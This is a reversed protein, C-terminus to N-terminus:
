SREEGSAGAEGPVAEAEVRSSVTGAALRTRLRAGAPADEPSRVLSGDARRTISFGRALTREPSLGSVLRGRGELRAAVEGLRGRAAGALRWGLVRREREAREAPRPAARAIRRATQGTRAGALRLRQRAARAVAAGLGSLRAAARDLRGRAAVARREAALLRERAAGLPLRSSRLLADRCRGLAAEAEALRAVLFEAAKTPTKFASHAVRDAVSVDIEHGLGTLVPRPCRAIAEAVVRSDFAALDTRSGGGRVLVVADVARAGLLSLASAVEREAAAGQMAAHVFLVTFGYGSEALTTLFDHYAASGESTVLGLALPLEALGVGRNAEILGAAELALLTEARRRELDGLTFAPDVERVQAQLRGGPPYFDLTVRCRVALGEALREGARDLVPRIRAWEGRWVVASLTGVIRDGEGKEVLDFYHHGSASPRYRAIEGVVWVSSWAGRVVEQVERGLQSVTYTGAAAGAGPTTLPDLERFTTKRGGAM